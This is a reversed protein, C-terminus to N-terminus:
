GLVQSIWISIGANMLIAAYYYKGIRQYTRRGDQEVVVFDLWSQTYQHTQIRYAMHVLFMLFLFCVLFILMKRWGFLLAYGVLFGLLIFIKAVKFWEPQLSHGKVFQADDRIEHILKPMAPEPQAKEIFV